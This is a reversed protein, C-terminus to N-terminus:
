QVAFHLAVETGRSAGLLSAASGKPTAIELLGASGFLACVEGEPCEAYYNCFRAIQYNNVVLAKNLLMREPTLEKPSINTICNGFHDIQIIHGKILAPSFEQPSPVTFRLYDDIEEGMKLPDVGKTMWAAIPAFIDRAHFTNSVPQRYNHEATIQVVRNIQEQQYIYSFIGNDPGVFNYNDTMVVIPRRASGVTPDVVALHLTFRPFVDYANRLTLAAAFVDHAPIEHTIDVLEVNPNISLISAKVSSVFHDKTGFDTLLTIIPRKEAM